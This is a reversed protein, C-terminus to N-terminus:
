RAVVEAEGASSVPVRAPACPEVRAWDWSWWQEPRELLDAAALDVAVQTLAHADVRIHGTPAFTVPQLSVRHRGQSGPIPRASAYLLAPKNRLGLVAPGINAVLEAAGFRFRENHRHTVTFDVFLALVANRKFIEAAHFPLRRALTLRRVGGHAFLRMVRRELYRLPMTDHGVTIDMGNGAVTVDHGRAGLAITAAGIHGLHPLLLLTGHGGDIARRLHEEGELEFCERLQAHSLAGVRFSEIVTLGVYRLHAAWFADEDVHRLREPGLVTALRRLTVSRKAGRLLSGIRPAWREAGAASMRQCALIVLALLPALGTVTWTLLARRLRGM